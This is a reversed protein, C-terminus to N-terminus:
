FNASSCGTSNLFASPVYKMGERLEIYEATLDNPKVMVYGPIGSKRNANWKWLGAYKLASVKVPENKYSITMYDNSVEFQSVIENLAGIKRNGLVKSSETDMLPIKSLKDATPLEAKDSTTINLLKSYASAHFLQSSTLAGIILGLVLVINILATVKGGKLGSVVFLHYLLTGAIVDLLALFWLGANHISLTPLLVYFILANILLLGVIGIVLVRKKKM